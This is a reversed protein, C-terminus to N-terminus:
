DAFRKVATPHIVIRVLESRLWEDVVAAHAADLEEGWYRHALKAALEGAGDDHLTVDGEVAVWHEPEGIPTAVVATARPVARLRAVRATTPTSFIQIDGEPTLDFWVPRPAPLRDPKAVTAVYAHLPRSLLARDADTLMAGRYASGTVTV